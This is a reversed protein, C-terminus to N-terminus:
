WRHAVDVVVRSGTGPGDLVLVREELAKRLSAVRQQRDM